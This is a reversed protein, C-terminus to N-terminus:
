HELQIHEKVSIWGASTVSFPCFAFFLSCPLKLLFVQVPAMIDLEFCLTTCQNLTDVVGDSNESWNYSVSGSRNDRFHLQAPLPDLKAM